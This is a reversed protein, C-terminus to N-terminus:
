DKTAKQFLLSYPKAPQETTLIDTKSYGEEELCEIVSIKTFNSNSFPEKIYRLVHNYVAREMIGLAIAVKLRLQVDNKLETIIHPKIYYLM